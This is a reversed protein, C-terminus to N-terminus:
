SAVQRDQPRVADPQDPLAIDQSMRKGALVDSLLVRNYAAQQEAGVVTVSLTRDRQLLEDALRAGAMGNGVVVIRRARM